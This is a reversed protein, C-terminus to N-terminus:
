SKQVDFANKFREVLQAIDEFVLPGYEGLLLAM